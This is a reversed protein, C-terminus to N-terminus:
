PLSLVKVFGTMSAEFEINLNGEYDKFRDSSLVFAQVDNQALSAELDGIGASIFDGAKFTVKKAGAYTNNVLALLKGEEPFEVAMSNSANIATGGAIKIDASAVDKSIAVATLTTVSM